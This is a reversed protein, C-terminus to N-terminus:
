SALTRDLFARAAEVFPADWAHGGSFREVEVAVSDGGLVALDADLKAETYWGDDHGRGILVPPLAGLKGHLEPPVDGGLAVVAHCRHGAGAAARYAMAVGQSFGIYALRDADPCAARAAVVAQRAYAVNDALALERDLRTMWSAGVAGSRGRYFPHLAQVAAAAWPRGAALRRLVPLHEEANESYGHFGVLLATAPRELPRELLLRGHVTAPVHLLETGPSGGTAPAVDSV